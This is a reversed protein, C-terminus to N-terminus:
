QENDVWKEKEDSKPNITIQKHSFSKLWKPNEYLIVRYESKKDSVENWWYGLKVAHKIIPVDVLGCCKFEKGLEKKEIAFFGDVNYSVYTWNLYNKGNTNKNMELPITDIITLQSFSQCSLSIFLIFLLKKM